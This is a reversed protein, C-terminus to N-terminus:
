TQEIRAGVANLREALDAYGRNISYVNRLTSKGPAALMALFIMMSPRLAAPSSIDAPEWKTPGTVYVRHQDALEYRANLKNLETFYIARNEYSWDHVLTRGQATAAILALFPLNDMNVGPYPISHLKVPSAFLKSPKITIDALKMLKNKAPYRKDISYKLGMKELIYLEKEVFEIPARKITLKSETVVSAAIFTMAEIPDEGIAFEVNKNISAVGHVTLTSTGVGEIKVGCEMLFACLDQVMYNASAYKIVTKTPRLAAAMLANETVTDGPEYLIVEEPQKKRVTCLFNGRNESVQLGFAELVYIHPMITRSGLDCGGPAPITFERMQNLLPGLFMIITRTRAAAKKDMSEVKLRKPPQILLDTDNWAVDVGISELVEIIRFVEEIRPTNKLTTRGKNLLAACLLAVTANKSTNVTIDGKLKHGGEIKFNAAGNSLSILEKGLASSIRDLMELSFNQKGQEMRTVASQSTGLKEAFEAQTLKQEKRIKRILAAIESTKM